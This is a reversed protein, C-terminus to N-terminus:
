IHKKSLKEFLDKASFYDLQGPAVAEERHGCVYTFPAGKLLSIVRSLKGEEGMGFSIVEIGLNKGFDILELLKEAESEDKVWCVIKAKKVGKERMEKLLDKLYKNKPKKKFNHYSVLVSEYNSLNKSIEEYHSKFLLWEIDVLYFPKKLAWIIWNKQIDSSIRRFGGERSSRMTFILKLDDKLKKLFKELEEQSIKELADVRLEFIDTKDCFSDIKLYAKELDKEAITICFM